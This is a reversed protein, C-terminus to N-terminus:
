TKRRTKGDRRDKRRDKSWYFMKLLCNRRWSHGIWNKKKKKKKKKKLRCQLGQPNQGEWSDNLIRLLFPKVSHRQGAARWFGLRSSWHNSRELERWLSDGANSSAFSGWYHFTSSHSFFQRSNQRSHRCGRWKQNRKCATFKRCSVSPKVEGGFSPASLIKEGSSIRRSRGPKFGRVEPM